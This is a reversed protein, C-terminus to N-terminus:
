SALLDALSLVWVATMFLAYITSLTCAAALGAVEARRLTIKGFSHDFAEFVLTVARWACIVAVMAFFSRYGPNGEGYLAWGFLMSLAVCLAARVLARTYSEAIEQGLQADTLLTTM